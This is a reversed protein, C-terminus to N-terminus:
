QCNTPCVRVNVVPNTDIHSHNTPERSTTVSSLRCSWRYWHACIGQLPLSLARHLCKETVSVHTYDIAVPGLIRTGLGFSQTMSGYINTDIASAHHGKHRGPRIGHNENDGLRLGCIATLSLHVNTQAVAPHDLSQYATHCAAVSSRSHRCM